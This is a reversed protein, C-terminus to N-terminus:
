RSAAMVPLTEIARLGLQGTWRVSSPDIAIELQPWRKLLAKLACKGELRALQHGLCFHIGSGFALHRGPGKELDLREPIEIAAPDLNAAALNAMIKDGRKLHAGCIETDRRVFRLRSFQVPTIFRLFEEVAQDARSWDAALWDRLRPNRLLEFVAGGILHTTTEHGAALLLFLMSVVEDRSIQAGEKQAQVLKAILGEGDTGSAARVQKELSRKIARFTFHVRIADLINRGGSATTTAWAMFKAREAVPLGLLECTVSLPLKRAYRAILDAPSGQAFLRDALEDSIALVRPEMDLIARRRFAEDVTRRLRMHDPDDMTQMNEALTRIGVTFWPMRRKGGEPRMTFTQSDQLVRETLEQTTTIWTRGVIPLTVEVVPGSARLADLTAVPNRFYDQSTLDIEPATPANSM